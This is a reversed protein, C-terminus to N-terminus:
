KFLLLYNCCYIYNENNIAHSNEPQLNLHWYEYVQIYSATGSSIPSPGASHEEEKREYVYNFKGREM